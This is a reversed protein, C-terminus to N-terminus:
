ESSMTEARGAESDLFRAAESEQGDVTSIWCRPVGVSPSQNERATSGAKGLVVSKAHKIDSITVTEDFGGLALWAGDRSFALSRVFGIDASLTTAERSQVIDWIKIRRDIGATALTQSDPSFALANIGGSMGTLRSRFKGTEAHLLIIDTPCGDVEGIAVYAGDPSFAAFRVANHGIFEAGLPRIAVSEETDWLMVLRDQGSSVLRRGNPSFCVSRVVDVHAELIARERAAPMDWLRVSGDDCGLALTRGDASFALCRVTETAFQRPSTCRGAEYSWIVLSREGGVILTKGDPSFALALGATAHEVITPLIHCGGGVNEMNWLILTHDQGSSALTKGDPSFALAEVLGTPCTAVLAPSSEAPPDAHASLFIMAAAGLLMGFLALERCLLSFRRRGAGVPTAHPGNEENRSQNQLSQISPLMPSQEM